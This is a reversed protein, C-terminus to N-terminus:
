IRWRAATSEHHAIRALDLADMFERLFRAPHDAPIWDELSPPFLFSQSYDARIEHSM